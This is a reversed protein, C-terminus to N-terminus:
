VEYLSEMVKFEEKFEDKSSRNTLLNSVYKVFAIKENIMQKDIEEKNAENASNLEYLKDLEKDTSISQVKKTVIGFYHFKVKEM